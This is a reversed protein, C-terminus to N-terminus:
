LRVSTRRRSLSRSLLVMGVILLLWTTPEPVVAMLVVDNGDGGAYSMRFTQDGVTFTTGEPLGGFTGNVADSGDNEIITFMMGPAPQFGLSLSLTAGNLAVGGAVATQDYQLGVIAGNLDVLYIAELALMLNGVTTLIGPGNDGPALTGGSNVTIARSTGSGSFTGHNVTVASTVSGNLVLKGAQITTRGTYTNAGAITLTGTGIKTLSGGVSAAGYPPGDQVVGSFVTSQSNSGVSLNRAGLYVLGDGEISGITVGPANHSSISLYGNGFVQVRATGGDSNQNFSIDGGTNGQLGGHAILTAGGASSNNGFNTSGGAFLGGVEAPNNIITATGASSDQSFLTSAGGAGTATAGNNTITANAATSNAIFELQSPFASRGTGGNNIITADGASTQDRFVMRAGFSFQFGSDPPKSVSGGYNVFSAQGATASNFFDVQGAGADLVPSSNSVLVANGASSNDYFALYGGNAGVVTGGNLTVQASGASSNERFSIRGGREASTTNSVQNGHATFRTGTGASAGQRFEIVGPDGMTNTSAAFSQANEGLNTIGSGSITLVSGPRVDITYASAGANFMITAIQAPASLFIDSRNSLDFSAIDGPGNPVGAPLWNQANHWDGNVAAGSWTASAPYIHFSTLFLLGSALALYKVQNM